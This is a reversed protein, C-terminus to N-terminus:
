CPKWESPLPYKLGEKAIKAGYSFQEEDKVDMGLYLAYEEIEADNPEYGSDFDEEM